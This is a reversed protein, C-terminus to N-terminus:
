KVDEVRSKARIVALALPDEEIPAPFAAIMMRLVDSRRIRKARRSNQWHVHADLLGLLDQDLRVCVAPDPEKEPTEM